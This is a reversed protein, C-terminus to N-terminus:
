DCRGRRAGTRGFNAATTVQGVAVDFLISGKAFQVVMEDVLGAQGNEITTFGLAHPIEHVAFHGFHIGTVGANAGALASSAEALSPFQAAIM